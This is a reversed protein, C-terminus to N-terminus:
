CLPSHVCTKQNIVDGGMVVRTTTCVVTCTGVFEKFITHGAENRMHYPNDTPKNGTLIDIPVISPVVSASILKSYIGFTETWDLVKM